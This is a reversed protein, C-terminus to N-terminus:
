PTGETAAGAVVVITGKMYPHLACIYPYTGPKSFVHQWRDHTDLGGSDFTKSTATVTHADDDDNVFLVSQGARITVSAPSFAFGAISSLFAALAVAAVGAVALLYSLADLPKVGYLSSTLGRGVLMALPIGTVVGCATLLLSDRLIKWVVQARRAGVAM